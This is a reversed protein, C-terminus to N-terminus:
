LKIIHNYNNTAVIMVFKSPKITKYLNQAFSQNEYILVFIARIKNM